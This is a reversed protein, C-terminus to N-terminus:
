GSWTLSAAGAALELRWGAPLAGAMAVLQDLLGSAPQAAAPPSSVVASSRRSRPAAAQRAQRRELQRRDRYRDGCRDSCTRARLRLRGAPIERQCEACPHEAPADRSVVRAPVAMDANGNGNSLPGRLVELQERTLTGVVDAAM